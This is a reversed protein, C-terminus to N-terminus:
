GRTAGKRSWAPQQYMHYRLSFGYHEAYAEVYTSVGEELIRLQQGKASPDMIWDLSTSNLPYM